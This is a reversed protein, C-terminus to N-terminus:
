FWGAIETQFGITTVLGHSAGEVRNALQTTVLPGIGLLVNKVPLFYMPAFLKLLVVRQHQTPANDVDTIGRVIGLGLRPWFGANKGIPFAYGIRPTVGYSTASGHDKSRAYSLDLTTGLSVSRFVFVEISPEISAGWSVNLLDGTAQSAGIGFNAGIVMMTRDAFDQLRPGASKTEAQADFAIATVTAISVACYAFRAM